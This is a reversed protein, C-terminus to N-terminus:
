ILSTHIKENKQHIISNHICHLIFLMLLPAKFCLIKLNHRILWLLNITTAMINFLMHLVYDYSIIMSNTALCKNVGRCNKYHFVQLIKVCINIIYEFIRCLCGTANKMYHKSIKQVDKFM